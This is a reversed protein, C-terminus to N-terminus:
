LYHEHVIYNINGNPEGGQSWSLSGRTYPKLLKNKHMYRIDIRRTQEVTTQTNWRYWNGSGIGGM